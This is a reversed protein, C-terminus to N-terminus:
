PQRVETPSPMREFNTVVLVVELKNFDVSPHLVAQQFMDVDQQQVDTVQGIVLGRPFTSGLGSTLVIDGREIRAEQPIEDLRLRGGVEGRSRGTTRSSQVVANVASLPDTILLVKSSTESVEIIQGVLGRETAVVMNPKVGSRRGADILIYGLLNGPDRGVVRSAMYEFAPNTEVFSLLALLTKNESEIEKLRVNEIMLKDVQIQLEKNSRRLEALDYVTQGVGRVQDAGYSLGHQLPSFVALLVSELPQLNNTQHLLLTLMALAAFVLFTTTPRNRLPRV